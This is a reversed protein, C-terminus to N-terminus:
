NRSSWLRSSKRWNLGTSSESTKRYEIYSLPLTLLVFAFIILQLVVGKTMNDNLDGFPTMLLYIGLIACIYVFLCVCTRLTPTWVFWFIAVMYITGALLGFIAHPEGSGTMQLVYCAAWIM